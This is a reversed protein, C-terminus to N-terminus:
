CTILDVLFPVLRIVALFCGGCFTKFCSATRRELKEDEVICHAECVERFTMNPNLIWLTSSFPTTEQMIKRPCSM